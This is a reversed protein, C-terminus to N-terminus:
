RLGRLLMFAEAYHVGITAGRVRAQAQIASPSRPMPEAQVESEYLRMIELKRAFTASVDVFMNPLFVREALPAAADTESLVECALVQRVGLASQHFSKLVAQSAQFAVQHDSHVDARNPVFVTEPRLRAVVARIAGVLDNLPLMDLRTTPFKLWDLTAFPFAAQVAAVQRAQQAIQEASFQPAQASTVVLWHLTDGEAAMKLMTGGCGLTEDDPHVAITLVKM